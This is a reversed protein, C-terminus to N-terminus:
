ASTGGDIKLSAGTVYSAEPSALYAVLGAVEDDVGYRKLAIMERMRDGTSDQPQVQRRAERLLETDIRGPQVNNITIGRPGLDRALGRTLSAVAGKTMAYVSAGSTPMFDSSISGINIIRGGHGMHRLAEQTAVFLGRINVAIMQDLDELAYDEIKGLYSIGANNVLIDLTGFEEVTKAVAARVDNVDASDAQISIAQGGDAEITRVVVDAAEKSDFYTFAVAAGEHGFRRAIAAGIGRSGGTVLAVKGVLGAM